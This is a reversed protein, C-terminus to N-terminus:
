LPLPGTTHGCGSVSVAKEDSAQNSYDAGWCAGGRLTKVACAHGFGSNASLLSLSTGAADFAVYDISSDSSGGGTM